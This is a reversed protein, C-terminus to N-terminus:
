ASSIAPVQLARAIEGAWARIAAWDRFDGEPAKVARAILREGLGHSGKDLRGAFTRHDRAGTADMLEDLHNSDVMPHPEAAGLPGSGFLWVPREHLAVQHRDVFGTAESLWKGMYVASGLIVADYGALDRVESAERV